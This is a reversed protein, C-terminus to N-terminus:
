PNVYIEVNAVWASPSAAPNLCDIWPIGGYIQGSASGDHNYYTNSPVIFDLQLLTWDSGWGVQFTTVAPNPNPGISPENPNGVYDACLGLTNTRFDCVSSSSWVGGINGYDRPVSDQDGAGGYLDFGLRVGTWPFNNTYGSGTKVMARFVVHSGPSLNVWTVDLERGRDGTSTDIRDSTQGNYLVSNDAHIYPQSSPNDMWTNFNAPALNNGSPPTTPTPTPTPTPTSTTTPTSTPTSTSTGTAYISMAGTFDNFWITGFPNTFGKTYSGYGPGGSRQGTGAVIALNVAVNGMVALGYTTASTATYSTTLKFDVWSFATGINVSSSQALLTTASNGNVAYLAATAKGSSAGSIYAIIDTVSGTTTAKFYSISQANPDNQDHYTGIASNGFAPTTAAQVATLSFASLISIIFLASICLAAPKTLKRLNISHQTKKLNHTKM